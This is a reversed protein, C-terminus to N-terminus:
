EPDFAFFIMIMGVLLVPFPAPNESESMSTMRSFVLKRFKSLASTCEEAFKRAHVKLIQRFLLNLGEQLVM